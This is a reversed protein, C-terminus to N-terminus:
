LVVLRMPLADLRVAALGDCTEELRLGSCTFSVIKQRQGAEVRVTAVLDGGARLAQEDLTEATQDVM